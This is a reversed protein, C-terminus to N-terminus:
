SFGGFLAINKASITIGFGDNIQQVVGDVILRNLSSPSHQGDQPLEVAITQNGDPFSTIFNGETDVFGFLVQVGAPGNERFHGVGPQVAAYIIM